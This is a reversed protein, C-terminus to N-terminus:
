RLIVEVRRNGPEEVGDGTKIRLEREGRGTVKANEVPLGQKVLAARIEKARDRSLEDNSESTGVTDTHGTIQVDSGPGIAARLATLTPGSEPTLDTTGEVFYLMYVRPPPPMRALLDAHPRKVLGTRVTKGRVAGWTNPQNLAGLEAETAPDLLAVAGTTGDTDPYLSVRSSACGTLAAAAAVLLLTRM